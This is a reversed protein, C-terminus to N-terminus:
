AQLLAIIHPRYLGGCRWLKAPAAGNAVGV